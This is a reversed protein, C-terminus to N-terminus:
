KGVIRNDYKIKPFWTESNGCDDRRVSNWTWMIKESHIWSRQSNIRINPTRLKFIYICMYKDEQWM